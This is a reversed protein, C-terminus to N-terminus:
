HGQHGKYNLGNVVGGCLMWLCVWPWFDGLELTEEGASGLIGCMPCAFNQKPKRFSPALHRLNSIITEPGVLHINKVYGCRFAHVSYRYFRVHMDSRYSQNVLNYAASPLGWALAAVYGLHQFSQGLLWGVM